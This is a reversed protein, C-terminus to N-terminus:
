ATASWPSGPSGGTSCGRPRRRRTASRSRPITPLPNRPPRIERRASRPSAPEGYDTIGYGIGWSNLLPDIGAGPIDDHGGEGSHDASPCIFSSVVTTFATINAGSTHNYDLRFNITNYITELEIQPLLRTFVAHSVGAGANNSDVFSVVPPKPGTNLGEGASPLVKFASEYNYLAIGLQKM